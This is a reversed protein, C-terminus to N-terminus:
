NGYRVEMVVCAQVPKHIAEGLKGNEIFYILKLSCFDSIRFFSFVVDHSFHNSPPTRCFLKGLFTM